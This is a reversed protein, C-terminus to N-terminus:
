QNDQETQLCFGNIRSRNGGELDIVIGIGLNSSLFGAFMWLGFEVCKHENEDRSYNSASVTHFLAFRSRSLLSRSKYRPDTRSVANKHPLERNM